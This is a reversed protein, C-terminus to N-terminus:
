CRTQASQMDMIKRNLTHNRNGVIAIGHIACLLLATKPSFFSAFFWFALLNHSIHGGWIRALRRAM